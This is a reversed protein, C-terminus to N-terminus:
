FNSKRREDIGILSSKKGKQVAKSVHCRSVQDSLQDAFCIVTNAKKSPQEGSAGGPQGQQQDDAAEGAVIEAGEIDVTKELFVQCGKNEAHQYEPQLQGQEMIEATQTFVADDLPYRCEAPLMQIGDIQDVPNDDAPIM